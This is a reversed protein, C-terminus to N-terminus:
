VKKYAFEWADTKEDCTMDQFVNPYENKLIRAVEGIVTRIEEEAGENTRMAIIHRWARLNGTVMITTGLGIPALRRFTSTLKKKSTFDKINQIDFVAALDRQVSELFGVVENYKALAKKNGKVAEPFWFALNDLRVYRLSEQSFATGARHRVIEHTFVRSVDKLIFTASAHELTSGHEHALMNRIYDKTNGRVRSVNPNTGDPIEPDYEQWSRYCVRGAAEILIEGGAAQPDPNWNPGGIENM